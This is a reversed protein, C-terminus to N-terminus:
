AAVNLRSALGRLDASACGAGPLGGAMAICFSEPRLSNWARSHWSGSSM